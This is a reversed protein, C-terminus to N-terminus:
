RIHKIPLKSAWKQLIDHAKAENPPRNMFLTRHVTCLRAVATLLVLYKGTELKSATSCFFVVGKYTFTALHSSYEKKKKPKADTKMGRPVQVM